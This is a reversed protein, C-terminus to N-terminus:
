VRIEKGLAFSYIIKEKVAKGTIQSLARAYYELQSQYKRVLEEETRVRDTKYDLVVLGDEEEFYVDIIGQVLLPRVCATDPYIEKAEVELVFPQEQHLKKNKAAKRIRGGSESQLFNLIDVTRIAAASEKSVRGEEVFAALRTQLSERTYEGEFDLLELFKHYATGRSAGMVEKEERLFGPILPVIEPEQYVIEGAEEELYARKKLESVTFKMQFKGEEEFPYQFDLQKQLTQRYSADHVQGEDWYELVNRTLEDAEEQAAEMQAAGLSDVITVGFPSDKRAAAPLVWDLYSKASLVQYPLFATKERKSYEELKERAEKCAGVLILKEKARTMAVYLVRMEEGLNEVTVQKQIVKKLLTPAKTRKELDIVDMGVGLEPHIVISGRIDQTNFLKGMGAVIVVPFELGKSKHISMIRVTDAQEDAINAEGYDVNYKQLQEIYRVFNFLGKYSIGEYAAAKAVLMQINAMRQTGGPMASIYMGYGTKEIIEWLLDHMATFPLIERFESVQALFKQLKQQLISEKKEGDESAYAHVAEYFCIEPYASRIKALEGANLGAFPSTLVATLPLDQRENDLIQLYDLLVSVEYTEFYGERSGVHAPIGEEALVQAFVDAWGKISRTLIVIDRYQVPRYGGTKKDVVQGQLLLLKIRDAVARAELRRATDEEELEQADVLLLEARNASAGNQERSEPYEAGPYLAAHADYEVGGVSKHMIQEFVDNVADLVERRSRFNRDLDIRQTESDQLSYSDYKEMFLEPRSLRFRYISQKVDGVMFVNYVGRSVTSVSTLIAEQILNSDQYEDIMVEEFQEQYERAVASPALQGEAEETLIRLAFQEMDQFDIVNKSRKKEAFRQGFRLVLEVLEEMTDATSQLDEALKKPTEYFCSEQLDKVLKKAKERLTKVREKKVPDITDDKKASLRKWGISHIKEYFQVFTKATEVSRIMELDEEVAEAYLYPGDSEECLHLAEQLLMQVGELSQHISQLLIQLFWTESFTEENVRYNDVCETLWKEPQPYSGAYEYLQLIVEELQRDSRGTSFKEAFELFKQTGEEYCAELMEELVDQRLLKLEGEEAIRFGPDLDIAHFHERIVSLCFSHITTIRASHILTAQRQLHVNEPTDELAHEIADRIREKMEAAAAETFTVILLRDVDLPDKEDLLRQIIREVLVATKGSGAAASVLINRHRLEIVKQQDKTWQVSM